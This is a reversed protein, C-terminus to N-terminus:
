PKVAECTFDFSDTLSVVFAREFTEVGDDSAIYSQGDSAVSLAFVTVEIFGEVGIFISVSKINPLSIGTEADLVTSFLTEGKAAVTIREPWELTMPRKM